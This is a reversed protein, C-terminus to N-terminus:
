NRLKVRGQPCTDGVAIYACGTISREPCKKAPPQLTLNVRWCEIDGFGM